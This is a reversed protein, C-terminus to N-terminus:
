LSEEVTTHGESSLLEMASKRGAEVLHGYTDVTTDISDHGLIRSVTHMPVGGDLLRTAVVHRLTHVGVKQKSHPTDIGARISARQITRLVNRGVMPHGLQSTFVLKMPNGSWRSGAKEAEQEQRIKQTRLLMETDATMDIVRRSRESKPRTRQGADTLTWNIRIEKRSFDVSEWDLGLGEGRRIGTLVLLRFYEFLRNSRLEDFLRNVEDGNIFRVESRESKPRRVRGQIPDAAILGDGVAAGLIHSVVSFITRRTSASLGKVILQSLFAEVHTPKIDRLRMRALESPLLHKTALTRYLDITTAKLERSHLPGDLWYNSWDCLTGRSDEFHFGRGLRTDIQTKAELLEPLTPRYVSQRKKEGTHPNTFTFRYEFGERSTHKRVGTPLKRSAM